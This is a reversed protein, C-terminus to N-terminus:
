LRTKKNILALEHDKLLRKTKKHSTSYVQKKKSCSYLTGKSFQHQPNYGAITGTNIYIYKKRQYNTQKQLIKRTKCWWGLGKM